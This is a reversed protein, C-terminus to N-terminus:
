LTDVFETLAESQEQKKCAKLYESIANTLPELVHWHNVIPGGHSASVDMVTFPNSSKCEIEVAISQRRIYKVKIDYNIDHTCQYIHFGGRQEGTWKLKGEKTVKTLKKVAEIQQENM